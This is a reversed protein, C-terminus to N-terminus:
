FSSWRYYKASASIILFQIIITIIIIAVIIITIANIVIGITIIVTVVDVRQHHRRCCHYHYYQHHLFHIRAYYVFCCFHEIALCNLLKVFHIKIITLQVQASPVNNQKVNLLQADLVNKSEILRQVQLVLERKEGEEQHREKETEALLRKLM